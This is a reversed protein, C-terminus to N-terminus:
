ISGPTATRATPGDLTIAWTRALAPLITAKASLLLLTGHHLPMEIGYLGKEVFNPRSQGDRNPIFFVTIPIGERRMVLHVAKFPGLLCDQVYTVGSPLPGALPVDRNAFGMRIMDDPLPQTMSLPMTEGQIHGASLMPLGYRALLNLALPAGLGVILVLSAMLTIGKQWRRRQTLRVLTAQKLLIRDALRNPEPTDFFSARLKKEFAQARRWAAACPPCIELHALFDTNQSLPETGLWRRFELCEM